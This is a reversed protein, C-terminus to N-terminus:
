KHRSPSLRNKEPLLFVLWFPQRTLCVGEGQFGRIGIRQDFQERRSNAHTQVQDSMAWELFRYAEKPHQSMTPILYTLGELQSSRQETNSPILSYGIKGAVKSTAPDELLYAQDSWLLGMFAHGQQLAAQAENWGYNLTDPPSLAILKVYQQTAAVNQPSNVM